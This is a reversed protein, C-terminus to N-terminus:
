TAAGVTCKLTLQVSDGSGVTRVVAWVHRMLMTNDAAFVGVEALSYNSAFPGITGSWVTKNTAEYTPTVTVDGVETGLATDDADEAGTGTGVRIEVFAGVSDVGGLLRSVRPLGSNAVTAM